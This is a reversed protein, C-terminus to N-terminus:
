ARRRREVFGNLLLTDPTSALAGNAPRAPHVHVSSTRVNQHQLTGFLHLHRQTPAQRAVQIRATEKSRRLGEKLALRLVSIPPGLTVMALMPVLICLLGFFVGFVAETAHELPNQLTIMIGQRVQRDSSM